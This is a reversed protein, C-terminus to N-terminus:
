QGSYDESHLQSSAADRGGSEAQRAGGPDHDCEVYQLPFAAGAADAFGASACGLATKAAVAVAHGRTARPDAVSDSGNHWLSVWLAFVGHGVSQDHAREDLCEACDGDWAVRHRYIGPQGPAIFARGWAGPWDVRAHRHVRLFSWSGEAEKEGAELPYQRDFGVMGLACGWVVFFSSAHDFPMRQGDGVCSCRRPFLYSRARQLKAEDPEGSGTPM